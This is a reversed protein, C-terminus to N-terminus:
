AAGYAGRRRWADLLFWVIGPLMAGVYVVGTGGRAAAGMALAPALVVAAVAGIRLSAPGPLLAGALALLAGVGLGWWGMSLGYLTGVMNTAVGIAMLAFGTSRADM